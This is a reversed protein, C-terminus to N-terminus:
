RTVCLTEYIAEAIRQHGLELPHGGPGKPCDGMFETMSSYPWGVFKETDILQVLDSLGNTQQILQLNSFTNVFRYEVDYQKLFSQLLIVQRLWTRLEYVLQSNTTVWNSLTKRDATKEQDPHLWYAHETCGPWITFVGYDDAFEQRGCSTWGVVVLDPAHEIISNITRKVCWVNSTGPRGENVLSWDLGLSDCLVSPWAHQPSNLEEGYTFSDGVTYLTKFDM